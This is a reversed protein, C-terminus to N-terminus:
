SSGIDNHTPRVQLIYTVDAHLKGKVQRPQVVWGSCYVQVFLVVGVLVDQIYSSIVSIVYVQPTPLSITSVLYLVGVSVSGENKIIFVWLYVGKM